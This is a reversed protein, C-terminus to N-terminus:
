FWAIEPILCTWGVATFGSRFVSPGRFEVPCNVIPARSFLESKPGAAELGRLILMFKTPSLLDGFLTTM